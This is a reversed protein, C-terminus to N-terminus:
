CLNLLLVLFNRLVFKDFGPLSDQVDSELFILEDDLPRSGGQLVLLMQGLDAICVLCQELGLDAEDFGLRIDLPQFGLVFADFCM